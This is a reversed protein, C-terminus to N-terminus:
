RKRDIPVAGASELLQNLENKLVARFEHLFSLSSNIRCLGDLSRDGAVIWRSLREVAASIGLLVAVNPRGLSADLATTKGAEDSSHLVDKLDDAIQYALGWCLSIRQLLQVQRAPAGHLIAPLALALAILPVTKGRAAREASQITHPLAHYHLDLSQGQLLGRVGLQHELYQLASQQHHQPASSSVRWMLAYGRNILALASLIAASEGHASHVCPGGRRTTANDMCPLDDFVLSATHFYELAIALDIARHRTSGFAFAVQFAIRPRVMSGNRSLIGRLADALPASLGAPLDLQQAFAQELEGPAPTPIEVPMPTSRGCQEWQPAIRALGFNANVM